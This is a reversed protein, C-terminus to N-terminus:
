SKLLQLAQTKVHISKIFDAAGIAQQPVQAPFYIQMTGHTTGEKKPTRSIRKAYAIARSPEFTSTALAISATERIPGRPLLPPAVNMAPFTILM